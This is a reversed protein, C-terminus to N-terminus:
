PGIVAPPRLCGLLAAWYAVGPRLVRGTRSFSIGGSLIRASGPRLWVRASFLFVSVGGGKKRLVRM